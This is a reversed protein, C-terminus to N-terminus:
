RKGKLYLVDDNVHANFNMRTFTVVKESGSAFSLLARIGRFDFCDHFSSKQTLAVPIGHRDNQGTSDILWRLVCVISNYKSLLHLSLVGCSALM